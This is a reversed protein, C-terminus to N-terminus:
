SAGGQFFSKKKKTQLHYSPDEVGNERPAEGPKQKKQPRRSTEESRQPVVAKQLHWPLRLWVKRKRIWSNRRNRWSRLLRLLYKMQRFGQRRMVHLNRKHLRKLRRCMSPCDRRLKNEFSRGLYVPPYRLSAILKHPLVAKTKGPILPSTAETRPLQKALSPLTSFSDPFRIGKSSGPFWESM